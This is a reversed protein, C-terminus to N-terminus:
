KENENEGVKEKSNLYKIVDNLLSKGVEGIEQNLDIGFQNLTNVLDYATNINFQEM